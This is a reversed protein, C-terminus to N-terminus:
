EVAHKFDGHLNVAAEPLFHPSHAQILCLDVVHRRDAITHHVHGPQGAISGVGDVTHRRQVGVNNLRIRELLPVGNPRFLEIVFGVTHGGAPPQLHAVWPKGVQEGAQQTRIRPHGVQIFQLLQAVVTIVIGDHLLQQVDLVGILHVEGGPDLFALANLHIVGGDKVHLDFAEVFVLPLEHIGEIHQIQIEADLLIPFAVHRRAGDNEAGLGGGAIHPGLRDDLQNILNGVQDIVVRIDVLDQPHHKHFVIVNGGGLM